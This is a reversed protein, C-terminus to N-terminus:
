EELIINDACGEDLFQTLFNGYVERVIIPLSNYQCCRLVVKQNSEEM